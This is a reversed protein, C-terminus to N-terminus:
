IREVKVTYGTACNNREFEMDTFDDFYNALQKDSLENPDEGDFDYYEKLIDTDVEATFTRTFKVKM